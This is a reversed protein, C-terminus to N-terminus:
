TALADTHTLEQVHASSSAPYLSSSARCQLCYSVRLEIQLTITIYILRAPDAASETVCLASTAILYWSKVNALGGNHEGRKSFKSSGEPVDVYQTFKTGHLHNLSLFNVKIGRLLIQNVASRFHGCHKLSTPIATTLGRPTCICWATFTVLCKFYLFCASSLSISCKAWILKARGIKISM